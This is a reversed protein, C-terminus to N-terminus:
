DVRSIERWYGILQIHCFFIVLTPILKTCAALKVPAKRLGISLIGKIFFQCLYDFRIDVYETFTWTIDTLDSQIFISSLFFYIFTLTSRQTLYVALTLISVFESINNDVKTM